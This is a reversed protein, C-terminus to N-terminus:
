SRNDSTYREEVLANTFPNLIDAWSDADGATQELDIIWAQNPRGPTWFDYGHEIGQCILSKSVGLKVPVATTLIFFEAGEGSKMSVDGQRCFGYWLTRTTENEPAVEVKQVVYDRAIVLRCRADATAEADIIQFLDRLIDIQLQTGKQQWRAVAHKRKRKWDQFLTLRTDLYDRFMASLYAHEAPMVNEATSLACRVDAWSLVVCRGTFAEWRSPANQVYNVTETRRSEPVLMCIFYEYESARRLSKLNRAKESLSEFYKFPQDDQFSAHFKAEVGVVANDLEIVIDIRGRSVGDEESATSDELYCSFHSDSVLPGIPSVEDIVRLIEKRAEPTSIILHRLIASAMNEGRLNEITQFFSM